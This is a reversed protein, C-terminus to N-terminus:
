QRVSRSQPQIPHKKLYSKLAKKYVFFSVVLSVIFLVPFGVFRSAEPIHPVLFVIYLLMLIAFCIVTFIINIVTAVLMFLAMKTKKTM